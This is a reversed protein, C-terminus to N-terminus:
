RVLNLLVLGLIMSTVGALRLSADSMQSLMLMAQRMAAPNVFPLIGELVMWLALAAGLDQWM